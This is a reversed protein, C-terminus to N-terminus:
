ERLIGGDPDADAGLAAQVQGDVALQRYNLALQQVEASWRRLGPRDAKRRMDRRAQMAEDDYVAALENLAIQALDVRLMAPEDVVALALDNLRAGAATAQLLCATIFFVLRVRYM